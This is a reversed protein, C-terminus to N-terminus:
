LMATEGKAHENLSNEISRRLFKENDGKETLEFIVNLNQNFRM